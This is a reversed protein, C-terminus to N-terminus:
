LTPIRRLAHRAARLEAIAREAAQQRVEGGKIDAAAQSAARAHRLALDVAKGRTAPNMEDDYAALFKEWPFASGPDTRRAPDREAHSIFGPKRQESEARTIRRAPITIGHEDEIWHAYDAAAAAMLEICGEVWWDPMQGWRHAQTAASLGFSHPNSGTADHFAEDTYRVMQIRSDADCMVHYSGYDSRNAIFSAVSEAGRDAPTTDPTNEATHVVVVGSPTARRPSRFQRTKPPNDLLYISM